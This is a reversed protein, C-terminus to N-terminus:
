RMNMLKRAQAEPLTTSLLCREEGKARCARLKAAMQELETYPSFSDGFGICDSGDFKSREITLRYQGPPDNENWSVRAEICRDVTPRPDSPLLFPRGLVSYRIQVDASSGLLGRGGRVKSIMAPGTADKIYETVLHTAIDQRANAPLGVPEGQANASPAGSGATQCAALAVTLAVAVALRGFRSM